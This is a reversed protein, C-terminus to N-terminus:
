CKTELLRKYAYKQVRKIKPLKPMKRKNKYM